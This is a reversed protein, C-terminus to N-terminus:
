WTEILQVVDPPLVCPGNVPVSVTCDPALVPTLGFPPAFVPSPAESVVGPPSASPM